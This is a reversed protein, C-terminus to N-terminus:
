ICGAPTWAPLEMMPAEWEHSSNKANTLNGSEKDNGVDSQCTVYKCGQCQQFYSLKLTMNNSISVHNNCYSKNDQMCCRRYETLERHMSPPPLTSSQVFFMRYHNKSPRVIQPMRLSALFLKTRLSSFYVARWESEFMVESRAGGTSNIKNYQTCFVWHFIM